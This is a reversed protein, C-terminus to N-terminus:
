QLVYELLSERYHNKEEETEFEHGNLIEEIKDEVYKQELVSKEEETVSFNKIVDTTVDQGADAHRSGIYYVLVGLVVLSSVSAIIGIKKKNKM